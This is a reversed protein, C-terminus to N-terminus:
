HDGDDGCVHSYPFGNAEGIDELEYCANVFATAADFFSPETSIVTLIEAATEVDQISDSQAEYAVVLTEGADTFDNHADEVESPPDLAKLRDVADGFIGPIEAFLDKLLPLNADIYPDEETTRREPFADGLVDYQSWVDAMITPFVVFYEDLTLTESSDSCGVAFAIALLFAAPIARVGLKM